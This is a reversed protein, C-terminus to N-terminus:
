ANLAERIFTRVKTLDKKGKAAEVGGSVDVAYPRTQQIASQVNEPTLGGALILPKQSNKPVKQWDFTLGTGGPVDKVFTDLLLANASPYQNIVDAIDTDNRMHVAKIYPKHFLACAQETEQGHFQLTDIAVADLVEEIFAQEADVFLGVVNTFAPIQRAIQAAIEIPVHRPSPPYFVLGIADAGAHAVATADDVSTIGCIKIRVRAVTM